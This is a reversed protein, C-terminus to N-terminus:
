VTIMDSNNHLREQDTVVRYQAKIQDMRHNLEALTKSPHNYRDIIMLNSITMSDYLVAVGEIMWNM